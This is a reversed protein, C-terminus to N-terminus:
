ENEESVGGRYVVVCCVDAQAVAPVTWVQMSYGLGSTGHLLVVARVSSLFGIFIEYFSFGFWCCSHSVSRVGVVACMVLPIPPLSNLLTFVAKEICLLSNIVNPLSQAANIEHRGNSTAWAVSRTRLFM